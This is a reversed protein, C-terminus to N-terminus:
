NVRESAHYSRGFEIIVKSRYRHRKFYKLGVPIITVPVGYKQTTGLAMVAVGAKFPLFNTQDHSGGEPFIGLAGGQVGLFRYVNDYVETQDVKPMVKFVYKADEQHLMVGPQKLVIETDSLVEEVVQDPM